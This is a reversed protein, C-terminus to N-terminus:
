VSSSVPILIPLLPPISFYIWLNIGGALISSAVERKGPLYGVVSSEFAFEILSYGTIEHLVPQESIGSRNWLRTLRLKIDSYRGLLSGTRKPNMIGTTLNLFPYSTMESISGDIQSAYLLRNKIM